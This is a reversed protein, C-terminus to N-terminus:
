CPKEKREKDRIRNCPRCNRDKGRFLYTDSGKGHLLHGRKCYKKWGNGGANFRNKAICDQMNQKPTGIFLHEPNVCIGKDCKHCVLLGKPIRGKFIMWAVRHAVTNIGNVQFAGYNWKSKNNRSATWFWCTDTKKVKCFFLKSIRPIDTKRLSTLSM